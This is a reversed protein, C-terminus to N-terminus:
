TSDDWSPLLTSVHFWLHKQESDARALLADFRDPGGPPVLVGDFDGKSGLRLVLAAPEDDRYRVRLSSRATAFDIPLASMSAGRRRAACARLPELTRPGHQPEM